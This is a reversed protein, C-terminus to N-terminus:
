NKFIMTPARISRNEILRLFLGNPGRRTHFMISRRLWYVNPDAAHRIASM